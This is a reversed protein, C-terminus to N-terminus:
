PLLMMKLATIGQGRRRPPERIEAPAVQLLCLHERQLVGPAAGSSPSNKRVSISPSPVPYIVGKAISIYLSREKFISQAECCSWKFTEERPWIGM